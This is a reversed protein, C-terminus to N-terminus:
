SVRAVPAAAPLSVELDNAALHAVLGATLSSHPRWGLETRIRRTHASTRLAGGRAPDRHCGELRPGTLEEMLEIAENLSVVEGGGVNFVARASAHEM